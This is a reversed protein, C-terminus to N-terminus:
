IQFKNMLAHVSLSPPVSIIAFSVPLPSPGCGTSGEVWGGWRGYVTELKVRFVRFGATQLSADLARPAMQTFLTRKILVPRDNVELM